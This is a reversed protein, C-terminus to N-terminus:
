PWSSASPPAATRDRREFAARVTAILEQGDWPKELFRFVEARNVAALIHQRETSASLVVRVADPQLGKMVQLVDAGNLGPMRYDSIALDFDVEGARLLAAEPDQFSEIAVQDVPFERRLTRLLANLVSLEDDVILIRRM